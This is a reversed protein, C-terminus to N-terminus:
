LLPFLCELTNCNGNRPLEKILHDTCDSEFDVTQVHRTLKETGSQGLERKVTLM